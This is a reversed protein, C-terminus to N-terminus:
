FEREVGRALEAFIIWVADFHSFSSIYFVKECKAMLHRNHVVLAWKWQMQGRVAQIERCVKIVM